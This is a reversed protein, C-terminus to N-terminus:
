LSPVTCVMQPMKLKQRGGFFLNPTLMGEPGEEEEEEQTAHVV